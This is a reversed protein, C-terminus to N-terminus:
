IQFYFNPEHASVPLVVFYTHKIFVFTLLWNTGSVKRELLAQNHFLLCYRQQGEYQGNECKCFYRYFYLIVIM